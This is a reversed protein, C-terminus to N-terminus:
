SDLYSIWEEIPLGTEAERLPEQPL